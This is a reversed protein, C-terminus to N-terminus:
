HTLTARGEKTLSVIYQSDTSDADVYREDTLEALAEEVEDVHVNLVEALQSSNVTRAPTEPELTAIADLIRQQRKKLAM